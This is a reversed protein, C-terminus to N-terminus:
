TFYNITCQPLGARTHLVTWGYSRRTWGARVAPPTCMNIMVTEVHYKLWVHAHRHTVTRTCVECGWNDPFRGKGQSSLAGGPFGEVTPLAVSDMTSAARFVLALWAGGLWRWPGVFGCTGPCCPKWRAEPYVQARHSLECRPAWAMTTSEEETESGPESLALSEDLGGWEASRRGSFTLYDSGWAIVELQRSGSMERLVGHPKLLPWPHPPWTEELSPPIPRGERLWGRGQSKWAPTPLVPCLSSLLSAWQRQPCCCILSLIQPWAAELQHLHLRSVALKVFFHFVWFLFRNSGTNFIHGSM